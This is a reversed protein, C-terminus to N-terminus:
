KFTTCPNWVMNFVCYLNRVEQGSLQVAPAIPLRPRLWTYVSVVAWPPETVWLCSTYNCFGEAMAYLTSLASVCAYVRACLFMLECVLAGVALYRVSLASRQTSVQEYNLSFTSNFLDQKFGQLGRGIYNIRILNANLQRLFFFISHSLSSRGNKHSLATKSLPGKLFHQAIIHTQTLSLTVAEYVLAPSNLQLISFFDKISYHIVQWM